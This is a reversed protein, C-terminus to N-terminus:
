EKVFRFEKGGTKLFYTGAALSHIDLQILQSNGCLLQERLIEKGVLDTLILEQNGDANSWGSIFLKDTAPNPFIRIGNEGASLIGLGVAVTDIFAATCGISDTVTLTVIFNGNAAFLHSPSITSSFNGDGFDWSYNSFSIVAPIFNLNLGGASAATFSADPISITVAASDHYKCGYNDKMHLTYTGSTYIPIASATFSNNWSYHYAPDYNIGFLDGSCLATDPLDFVPISLTGTTDVINGDMWALRATVFNRMGQVNNHWNTVGLEPWRQFNRDAAASLLTEASDIMHIYWANTLDFQRLSNWRCWLHNMYLSDQRFKMWWFPFPWYPHTNEYVWGSTPSSNFARDYDWPPGIYMKNGDTAKEKYLFTSRGYSDYNMSVENVLMFDIFSMENVFHRFGTNPDQFNSGALANEFSDTFSHIYNHQQPKISDMRPYVEKFEVPFGCTASNIPPFVSNWAGPSGNINMEIIYGGTLEIGSTDQPNMAAVDVRFSDVKIKETLNYVGIYDGDLVAECYMTRPAYVGMRRSQSYAIYNDLLSHDLYEAKLIWDNETPLGLLPASIQNGSSDYLDFDFNKKPYGPGTYGQLEVQFNGEYAFVTDTMYNMMGPGNDIIHFNGPVKPENPISTGVNMVIIPLNSSYFHFPSAPNSGFTISWDILTGIDVAAVDQVILTWNGNPNQLNNVNGMQGMPKYTGTFPANGAAIGTTADGRVHTNTFNDGGGGVGSAIVFQTADPARLTIILDADYTHPLNFSIEELGFSVTDIASPLGSVAITFYQPPGNDPIAGNFTQSFTQASLNASIFILAASFINKM